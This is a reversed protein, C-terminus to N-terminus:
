LLGPGGMGYQAASGPVVVVADPAHEALAATLAAALASEDTLAGWASSGPSPKVSALHIVASPRRGAVQAAVVKADRLDGDLAVPVLGYSSARAMVHCGVFGTAGTVLVESTM